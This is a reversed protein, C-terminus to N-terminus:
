ADEIVLLGHRDAIAQIREMDCVRGNLHVPMLAKTRPTIAAELLAPDMNYDKGVDVLIPTAGCHMIASVTAVFTHGVTIGEDGSGIGCALLAFHLAHYGSNVGVAYKVGVFSALNNEFDRLQQRYILDGKSLCDIIAQDIEPKLRGYHARADVFPVKYPM